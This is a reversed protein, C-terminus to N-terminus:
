HGGATSLSSCIRILLWPHDHKLGTVFSFVMTLIHAGVLPLPKVVRLTFFKQPLQVGQLNQNLHALLFQLTMGTTVPM